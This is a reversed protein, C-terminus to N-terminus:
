LVSECITYVLVTVLVDSEGSSRGKRSLVTTASGCAKSTVKKKRFEFGVDSQKIENEPEWIPNVWLGFNIIGGFRQITIIKHTEQVELKM